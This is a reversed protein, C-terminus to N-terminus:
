MCNHFLTEGGEMRVLGMEEKVEDLTRRHIVGRGSVGFRKSVM